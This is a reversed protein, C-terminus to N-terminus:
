FLLFVIVDADPFFLVRTLHRRRFFNPLPISNPNGPPSRPASLLLPRRESAEPIWAGGHCWSHSLFPFFPPQRVPFSSSSPSHVREGHAPRPTRSPSPFAQQAQGPWCTGRSFFYLYGKEM